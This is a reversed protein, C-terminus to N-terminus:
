APIEFVDQVVGTNEHRTLTLAGDAAVDVTTVGHTRSAIQRLAIEDPRERMIIERDEDPDYTVAGGGGDVVYTVGDVDFREYCHAHGALVLKVGHELFRGHLYDRVSLNGPAHKSFTYTPRHFCVIPHHIDPSAAAASLEREIFAIQTDSMELLAGSETDVHIFRVGGYTYAFWRADGGEDGQGGFLREYQVTIEDDNEFEHNGVCLQVAGQTFLPAMGAAMHNWTDFPNAQYTIDGGHLVLDCGQGALVEIGAEAHPFSTDSLWGFRFGVDPAVPAKFGGTRAAGELPTVEWTVAEGAELGELVVEQVVHLGPEDPYYREMGLADRAYTLEMPSLTPTPTDDGGARGVRVAFPEEVRSEFRLRARGPGLLQVFPGKSVGRFDPPPGSDVFSADRGQGADELPAEEGDCGLLSTPLFLGAGAGLSRRLFHRRKM